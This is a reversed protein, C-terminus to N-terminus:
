PVFFFVIRLLRFPLALLTFFHVCSVCYFDHSYLSAGVFMCQILCVCVQNIIYPVKSTFSSLMDLYYDWASLYGVSYALDGVHFVGHITGDDAEKGLMRCTGVAPSGYEHWLDSADQTGRGLDGFVALTTISRDKTFSSERSTRLSPSASASNTGTASSSAAAATYGPDPPATFTHLGGAPVEDATTLDDM